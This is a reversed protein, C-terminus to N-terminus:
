EDGTAEICADYIALGLDFQGRHANAAKVAKDGCRERQQRLAIELINCMERTPVVGHATIWEATTM